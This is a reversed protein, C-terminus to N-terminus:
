NVHEGLIFLGICCLQSCNISREGERGEGLALALRAICGTHMLHTQQKSNGRRGIWHLWISSSGRDSGALLACHRHGELNFDLRCCEPYRVSWSQLSQCNGQQRTSGQGVLWRNFPQRSTHLMCHRNYLVKVGLSHCVHDPRKCEQLVQRGVEPRGEHLREFSSEQADSTLAAKQIVGVGSRGQGCNAKATHALCKSGPNL